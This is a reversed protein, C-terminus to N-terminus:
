YHRDRMIGYLVAIAGIAIIILQYTPGSSPIVKLQEPIFGYNSILPWIGGLITLIGVFVVMIKM